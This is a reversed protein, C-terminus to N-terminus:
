GAKQYLHDVDHSDKFQLGLSVWVPQQDDQLRCRCLWVFRGQVLEPRLVAQCLPCRAEGTLLPETSM